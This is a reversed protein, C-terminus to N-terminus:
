SKASVNLTTLLIGDLIFERRFVSLAPFLPYGPSCLQLAKDESFARLHASLKSCGCAPLVLAPLPLARSHRARLPVPVIFPSARLPQPWTRKKWLGPKESERVVEPPLHEVFSREMRGMRFGNGSGSEGGGGKAKSFFHLEPTPVGPGKRPFSTETLLIRPTTTGVTVKRVRM